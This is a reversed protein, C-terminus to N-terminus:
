KSHLALSLTSEWVRVTGDSSASVIHRGDPSYVASNVESTHGTLTFLIGGNEADWVKITRDSSATVIRKGDPSFAASNVELNHGELTLLLAGNETDWVRVTYNYYLGQSSTSTGAIYKGSPSFAASSVVGLKNELTLLLVGTEADWIRVTGDNSPTVIRKGDPSFAASNVGLNHGELTLLLAGTEADWVRVTRDRSASVIRKGDPSFAASALGSEHGQLTLLLAGTEADWVRVTRDRSASVIRAGDPSFAAVVVSYIHGELTVLIRGNDGNWVNITPRHWSASVIRRGDPSYAAYTVMDIHETLTRILAPHPLDPPPHHSTIFHKAEAEVAQCAPKLSAIHSLRTHLTALVDNVSECRALIHAMNRYSRELLKLADAHPHENLRALTAGTEIDAEVSMIGRHLTKTALFRLDLVTTIFDEGRAAEILHYTLNDWMYPEDPPMDRWHAIGYRDLFAVNAAILKEAGGILQERLYARIVDHLAVTHTQLNYSLLLSLRNLAACTEEVDLDDCDWAKELTAFPIATDEPFIALRIFWERRQSNLRELSLSLSADVARNRDTSNEVQIAKTIGRKDFARKLYDLAKELPEGDHMRDHLISNTLKLLLPYEGLLAAMRALEDRLADVQNASLGYAILTFAEDGTMQNVSIPHTGPPLTDGM